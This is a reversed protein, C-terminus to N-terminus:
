ILSIDGMEGPLCVVRTFALIRACEEVIKGSWGPSINTLIMTAQQQAAVDSVIDTQPDFALVSGAKAYEGTKIFYGLLMVKLLWIALLRNCYLWGGGGEGRAIMFSYGIEQAQKL